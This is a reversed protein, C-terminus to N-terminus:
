ISTPFVTIDEAYQYPHVVRAHRMFLARTPTVALDASLSFGRMVRPPQVASPILVSCHRGEVVQHKHTQKSM